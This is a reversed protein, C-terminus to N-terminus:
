QVLSVFFRLIPRQPSTVSHPYPLYKENQNTSQKQQSTGICTLLKVLTSVAVEGIAVARRHHLDGTCDGKREGESSM